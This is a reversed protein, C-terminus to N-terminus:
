SRVRICDVKREALGSCLKDAEERSGLPGILVRYVLEHSDRLEFKRIEVPAGQLLDQEDKAVKDRDAKANNEIRFTGIQVWSKGRLSGPKAEPLTTDPTAASPEAAPASTSPTAESPANAMQPAAAAKAKARHYRKAPPPTQSPATADPTASPPVAATQAPMPTATAAMAPATPPQAAMPQAPPPALPASQVSPVPVAPPVLGPGGATATAAMPKTKGGSGPTLLAQAREQPPLGRLEAYNALNRQVTADDLDIRAVEAAQDTRGALAPALALNSRQRPGAAPDTAVSRLTTIAADYEGALAESLGLNNRLLLDNPALVLGQQYAAKAAAFDGVLDEAVGIGDYARPDPAIDISKNFAEIARQPQNLALHTSGLGRLAEANKGDHSLAKNFAEAAENPSGIANLAEGLGILARMNSGDDALVRRYLTVARQLDGNARARDAFDLLTDTKVTGSPTSPTERGAVFTGIGGLTDCGGLMLACLATSMMAVRGALRRAAKEDMSTTEKGM